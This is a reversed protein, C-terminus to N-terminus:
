IKMPLIVLEKGQHLFYQQLMLTTQNHMLRTIVNERKFVLQSTFFVSHPFQNSILDSLKKLEEVPDTGFVVYARSPIQYQMCYQVFYDLIQNANSRMKELEDPGRFSETDVTGAMVFIFNKFQHPFLRRISLLTHMGVCLYNVFIVATPLLPDLVCTLHDVKTASLELLKDIESLKKSVRQYHHRIMLCIFVLISTILLTVWGGSTFKYYVTICLIVTTTLCAVAAIAGHWIWHWSTRHTAWYVSVSLLSLTFTIFVNISYLVVLVSVAGATLLLMGLAAVGMLLLGNQITLRSSLYRFQRPLWDNAAMNALVNPGDAFGTNAAVFLLGAELLLTISLIAHGMGRDGLIAHFVVANLTQGPAPKVDWLLYLLIIGGVTFSLSCALYFMTRRGTQVRPEKLRQVNNSIAELGTYTGSGLSYAHLTLGIVTLWGVSSSLVQTRHLTDPVLWTLGKSHMGIGYLILVFHTIVFGLFIPLLVQIAEKMGRWNLAFLVIIAAAEVYLKYVGLAPPFLSFIADAGSAISITITLVYDVILASGSVLGAYPHLLQTAVKYGGGGSPFLTIVQNYGVAIIFITAVSIAAIYLALDTHSGLALYSEEPGYCSSSLADAGLGVWALLAILALRQRVMPNFPNLPAGTVTRKLRSFM